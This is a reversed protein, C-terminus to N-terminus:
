KLTLLYALVDRLERPTLLSGMPPMASLPASMSRIETVPIVRQRTGDLLTVSDATRRQLVGGIITGNIGTITVVGYGDAIKASPVILCELLSDPDHRSAVGTLDPGVGGGHGGVAHCRLCQAGQHSLFVSRGLDPDGGQLAFRHVALPDKPQPRRDEYHAVIRAWAADKAADSHAVEILEVVITPDLTGNLYQDGLARLAGEAAPDRDGIAGLALVASQREPASGLTLAENFLTFAEEPRCTGLTARAAMRLRPTAQATALLGRCIEVTLAASAQGRAHMTKLYDIRLNEAQARDRVLLALEEVSREAGFRNELLKAKTLVEGTAFAILRPIHETIAARALGAARPALPEWRGWVTDRPPPADWQELAELAVLRFTDPMGSDSPLAAAQAVRCAARSTGLRLNAAIARRLFGEGRLGPPLQARELAGALIPLAASIERDYIARAAETVIQADSDALFAAVEPADNGLKNWQVDTLDSPYM